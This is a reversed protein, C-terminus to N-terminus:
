RELAVMIQIRWCYRGDGDALIRDLHSTQNGCVTLLEGFNLSGDSQRYLPIRRVDWMEDPSPTIIMHLQPRDFMVTWGAMIMGVAKGDSTWILAGSDGKKSFQWLSKDEPLVWFERKVGTNSHRMVSYVGAVIGYTVGTSRGRKMVYKDYMLTGIETADPAWDISSLYGDQPLPDYFQDGRKPKRTELQCLAYDLLCPRANYLMRKYGSKVVRAVKM